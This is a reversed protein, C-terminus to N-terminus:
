VEGDALLESPLIDFAVALADLTELTCTNRMMIRSIASPKRGMITALESQNIEALAMNRRISRRLNIHKM